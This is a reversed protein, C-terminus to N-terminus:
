GATQSIGYSIATGPGSGQEVVISFPAVIPITTAGQTAWLKYELTDPASVYRCGEVNSREEDHGRRRTMRESPAYPPNGSNSCTPVESPESRQRRGWRDPPLM